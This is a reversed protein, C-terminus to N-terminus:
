DCTSLGTIFHNKYTRIAREVASRRHIYPPAIQYDVGEDILYEKLAELCENNHRALRPTLGARKLWRFVTKYAAIIAPGTRNKKPEGEIENSDCDYLVFRYNNGKSSPIPFCRTQDTYVQGTTLDIIAAYCYHTRTNPTNSIPNMDLEFDENPDSPNTTGKTKHKQRRKM